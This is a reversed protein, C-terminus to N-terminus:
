DNATECDFIIWFINRPLYVQCILVDVLIELLSATAASARIRLLITSTGGRHVHDLANRLDNGNQLSTAVVIENVTSLALYLKDIQTHAYVCPFRHMQPRRVSHVRVRTLLSKHCGPTSYPSYYMCLTRPRARHGHLLTRRTYLFTTTNLKKM